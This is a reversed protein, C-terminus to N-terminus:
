LTKILEILSQGIKRNFEFVVHPRDSSVGYVHQNMKLIKLQTTNGLRDTLKVEFCPRSQAFKKLKKTPDPIDILTEAQPTIIRNLIPNLDPHIVQHRHDTWQDGDRQAYLSGKPRGDPSYFRKLEMEDVDDVTLATWSRNRLFQISQIGDLLKFFAGGSALWVKKGDLTIYREQRTPLLSGVRLECATKQTTVRIVFRPPNLDFSELPGHSAVSEIQVTRLADLLHEIFVGHALRDLGSGRFPSDQTGNPIGNALLSSIQWALPPAPQTPFSRKQLTMLWHNEPELQEPNSKVLTLETVQELDFHIPRSGIQSPAQPSCSAASIVAFCLTLNCLRLTRPARTQIM